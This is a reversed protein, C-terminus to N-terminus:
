PMVRVCPMAPNGFAKVTTRFLKIKKDKWEAIQNTGLIASITKANTTNLALGKKTEKFHIVCMNKKRNGPSIVEEFVGDIITLLIPKGNSNFDDAALHKSEQATRYSGTVKDGLKLNNM